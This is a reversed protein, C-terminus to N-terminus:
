PVVGNKQLAGRDFLGRKTGQTCFDPLLRTPMSIRPTGSPSPTIGFNRLAALLSVFHVSWCLSLQIALQAVPASLSSFEVIM